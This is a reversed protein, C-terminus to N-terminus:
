SPPMSRKRVTRTAGVSALYGASLTPGFQWACSSQCGYSLQMARHSFEDRKDKAYQRVRTRTQLARRCRLVHPWRFALGRSQPLLPSETLHHVCHIPGLATKM